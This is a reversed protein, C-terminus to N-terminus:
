GEKKEKEKHVYDCDIDFTRVEVGEGMTSTLVGGMEVNDFKESDELRATFRAVGGNNTAFLKMKLKLTEGKMNTHLSTMWVNWPIVASIDQMLHPYLLSEKMLTKIVGVKTKLKKKENEIKEVKAITEQLPELKKDIDKIEANLGRYKLVRMGYTGFVALLLCACAFIILFVLKKGKEKELIEKPLLNIKIM